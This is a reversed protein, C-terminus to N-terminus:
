SHSKPSIPNTGTGYSGFAIPHGSTGASPLNLQERWTCGKKFLIQDASSFYSSNVKAISKWATTPSTGAGNDNAVNCDIYYVASWALTPVLLFIFLLFLKKIDPEEKM